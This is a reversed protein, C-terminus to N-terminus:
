NTLDTHALLEFATYANNNTNPKSIVTFDASFNTKQLYTIRGAVPEGATAEDPIGVVICFSKYRLTELFNILAADNGM